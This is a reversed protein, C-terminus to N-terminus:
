GRMWGHMFADLGVEADPFGGPLLLINGAQAHYNITNKFLLNKISFEETPVVTEFCLPMVPCPVKAFLLFPPAPFFFIHPISFFFHHMIRFFHHHALPNIFPHLPRISFEQAPICLNKAFLHAYVYLPLIMCVYTSVCMSVYTRLYM